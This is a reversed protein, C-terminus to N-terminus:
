GWVGLGKCLGSGDRAAAEREDGREREWGRRRKCPLESTLTLARGRAL